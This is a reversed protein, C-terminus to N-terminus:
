KALEVKLKAPKSKGYVDTEYMEEAHAPLATFEGGAIAQAVYSLYYHGAALRESYFRVASHRLEKHYFSWRSDGFDRWDSYKARLSDPAFRAGAKQADVESSTALQRNVPELGGPVPDEVIVFYRESPISVFLDVRVLDGTAVQIPSTALVWKGDREVSYQRHIEIGANVSEPSMRVPEWSLLTDYYLRGQGERGVTVVSKEGRDSDKPRYDCNVPKDSFNDFRGQCLPQKNLLVHFSLRPKQTEFAKSFRLAAMAAFLNDQTSDWHSRGKRSAVITAMLKLPISALSATRSKARNSLLAMLIAADDRVPSSLISYLASDPQESFRITGSSQDSHALLSKLVKARMGQTNEVKTMADLLMAKGFLSMEGLHMYSRELDAKSVKGNDALASLALARVDSMVSRSAPDRSQDRKLIDGLYKTLREEVPAPPVHGLERMWNFAKATFASLFPSVYEDRPEYFAMGGNPAQFESAEALVRDAEAPANKWSFSSSFWPALGAAAGAMVARSIKQEWCEYPYVKMFEFPAELGGLVSPSVGVALSGSGSRMEGPFVIPQSAKKSTITGFVASVDRDLLPLVQLKQRLGDRDLNDGARATFIIEGKGSSKVPLRVVYRKYPEAAITQTISTKSSGGSAVQGEAKVSVELNRAKDTRNMVSFGAEFSDGDMVQNPLVPRIETMQNVKFSYQGLGMRDGPTVAMALVRWGTLNDPVKFEVSAKGERDVKLSPNWYSVFKFLSRMGLDFGASASPLGGKKELKERGVLQMLLNYNVLDLEDLKYFGQYPDFAKSKEKLLDFVSEDLVAVALEIPPASEGKALNRLSAQFQLKVTDRPKYVQKDSTCKVEIEKYRDKVELRAYGIRFAPKGLDEGTPSLPKEVRPSTVVVSVYFGPLYDPLVPFEIVEASRKLTKVWHELVGYREVTVLAKAGPFPNQVFIKATDGVHYQEKDPYINLLNGEESKWLVFSEGSVWSSIATKQTREKTDSVSATIRVTGSQKPTFEFSRPGDGSTVDRSEVPVWNEEYRTPYASGADKVRAAKIELRDIDVHVKQDAVANGLQDTVIFSVKAPKAEELVWSDINLGVFRDRGFYTATARGAVSKGREDKVSSEVTLRGYYVPLQPLTFPTDSVGNNDLKGKTKFVTQAEPLTQGSESKDTKEVVDFQYGRALPNEPHFPVATVSATVSMPAGGYPGGAHLKAQTSVTVSDGAFFSKGNLDTTVHFPSPTFDSVLFQLPELDLKAFDSNLQFKYYGVAGNKPVLFEGDTAGFQSLKIKDRQFVVRSAPDVVKLSYSAQPPLVPSRGREDRVYIKYQVTDGLKYVGQATAGWARIHGHKQRMWSPIYDYNAGESDVRFHYTLPLLGMDKGKQCLLFLGQNKDQSYGEAFKLKPDIASTGPLMALGNSDTVASGLFVPSTGVAKCADKRFEVKVGPVVMGTKLDTVWVLSNSYGMKLHVQFPTIEAFIFGPEQKKGNQYIPPRPLVTGTLVGSEAPILKRIGLPITAQVDRAKPGPIATSQVPTVGAATFEQHLFDIGAINVAFVPLDTDLGKELVSMDKYVSLGPPWHDTDFSMDIANTIPRGFGDKVTNVGAHIRYKSFPRLAGYNIDCSYFGDKDPRQSMPTAGEEDPWVSSPTKKAAAAGAGTPATSKELTVPLKERLESIAVPSTFLLSVTTSPDCKLAPNSDGKKPRIILAAGGRDSCRVGEFRFQVMTRLTIVPRNEIGPETGTVSLIGPEIVLSAEGGGPLDGVPTLLWNTGPTGRTEYQKSEEATVGIRGGDEPKFFAHAEISDQRVSQDFQVRIVPKVPSLWSDFSAYTTRPRDTVFSHIVPGSLQAGDESKIGAGVTVTYRTAPAMAHREDLGCALSSPNLWRWQCSLAPKISIPIESAKREMGGLPVVPRDFEFVIQRGPPVDSGSPTIRIIKLPSSQAADISPALGAILLAFITFFSILVAYVFTREGCRRRAGTSKRVNM